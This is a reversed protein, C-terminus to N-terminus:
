CASAAAVDGRLFPRRGNPRWHSTLWLGVIIWRHWYGNDLLLRIVRPIAWRRKFFYRTFFRHSAFVTSARHVRPIDDHLAHPVHHEEVRAVVAGDVVERDVLRAELRGVRSARRAATEGRLNRSKAM